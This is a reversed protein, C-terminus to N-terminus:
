LLGVAHLYLDRLEEREERVTQDLARLRIMERITRKDLGQNAAADLAEKIDANINARDEILAEVSKITDNLLESAISNHGIVSM